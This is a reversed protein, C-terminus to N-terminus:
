AGCAAVFAAFLQREPENLLFEPHWQAGICFRQGPVEIAEVIGDDAVGCVVAGPGVETVGQHHMSNAMFERTGVIRALMTGPQVQVPHVAKVYSEGRHRSWDDRSESLKPILQGGTVFNLMQFGGCEALVPRNRDLCRRLLAAEFRFRREKEAPESGDERMLEPVPFQFGGGSVIIGDCMQVYDDVAEPESPLMIGIAGFQRLAEFNTADLFYGNRPPRADPRFEIDATVGIVPKKSM